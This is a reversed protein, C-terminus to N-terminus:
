CFANSTFMIIPIFFCPQGALWAAEYQLPECAPRALAKLHPVDLFYIRYLMCHQWDRSRCCASTSSLQLIRGPQLHKATAACYWLVCTRWLNPVCVALAKLPLFSDHVGATSHSSSLGVAASPQSLIIPLSRLTPVAVITMLVVAGQVIQVHFLEAAGFQVSWCIFSEISRRGKTSLYM